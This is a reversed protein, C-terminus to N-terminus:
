GKPQLLVDFFEEAGGAFAPARVPFTGHKAYGILGERSATLEHGKLNPIDIEM